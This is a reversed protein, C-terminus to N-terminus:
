FSDWQLCLIRKILLQEICGGAKGTKLMKNSYVPGTYANLAFIRQRGYLRNNPEIRNHNVELFLM